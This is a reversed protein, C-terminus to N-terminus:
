RSRSPRTRRLSQLLTEKIHAVARSSLETSEGPALSGLKFPGISVRKLKQVPHGIQDFMIRIQNKKGEKLTLELWMNGKPSREIERVEVPLCREGAVVPGAAISELKVKDPIGSVKAIYTKEVEFRPHALIQALEGDNTFFMLGTTHYDLRGSMFFSKLEAPLLDFVTRRGLRDGAASVVGDPKHFIIYRPHPPALKVPKGDVVVKDREPDVSTGLREVVRGNVRVRGGTIVEEAHRRSGYGASRLIKQLRVKMAQPCGSVIAAAM